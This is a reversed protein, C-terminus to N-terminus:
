AATSLCQDETSRGSWRKQLLQTVMVQLHQCSIGDIGAVHSRKWSEPETEKELRRIDCAAYWKSMVSALAIARYSRIGKTSEADPKPSLVLKVIKCSSPAEMQGMVREQFCKTIIYIKEQPLQKIMERVVADEPGNVKNESM